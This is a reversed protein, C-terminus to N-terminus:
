KGTLSRAKTRSFYFLEASVALVSVLNLIVVEANIVERLFLFFIGLLYLGSIATPIVWQRWTTTLKGQIKKGQFGSLTSYAYVGKETLQYHGRKNITILDDLVKLHYNMRGSSHVPILRMLETYNLNGNERLLKIIKRRTNDSLAEHLSNDTIATYLANSKKRVVILTGIIISCLITVIVSLWLADLFSNYSIFFVVILGFLASTQGYRIITLISAKESYSLDILSKWAQLGKENLRYLNDNKIVMPALSKLHYNLSGREIGNLSKLLDSYTLTEREHLLSIIKRRTVDRLIKHIYTTEQNM